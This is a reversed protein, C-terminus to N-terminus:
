IPKPDLNNLEVTVLDIFYSTKNLKFIEMHFNKGKIAWLSDHISWKNVTGLRSQGALITQTINTINIFIAFIQSIFPIAHTGQINCPWCFEIM